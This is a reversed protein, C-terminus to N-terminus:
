KMVVEKEEGYPVLDYLRAKIDDMYPELGYKKILSMDFDEGISILPHYEEATEPFTNDKTKLIHQKLDEFFFFGDEDFHVWAHFPNFFVPVIGAETEYEVCAFFFIYDDGGEKSPKSTLFKNAEWEMKVVNNVVKAM